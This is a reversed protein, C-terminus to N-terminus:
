PRGILLRFVFCPDLPCCSLCVPKIGEYCFFRRGHQIPLVLQSPPLRITPVYSARLQVAEPQTKCKQLQSHSFAHRPQEAM